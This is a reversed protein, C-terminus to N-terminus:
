IDDAWAGMEETFWLHWFKPDHKKLAEELAFVSENLKVRKSAERAIHGLEHVVALPKFM